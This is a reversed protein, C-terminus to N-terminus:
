HSSTINADCGASQKIQLYIFYINLGSRDAKIVSKESMKVSWNMQLFLSPSIM